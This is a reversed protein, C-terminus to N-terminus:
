LCFMRTRITPLVPLPTSYCDVFPAPSVLCHFSILVYTELLEIDEFQLGSPLLARYNPIYVPGGMM